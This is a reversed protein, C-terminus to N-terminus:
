ISWAVPHNVVPNFTVGVAEFERRADVTMEKLRGMQVAHQECPIHRFIIVQGDVDKIAQFCVGIGNWRVAADAPCM